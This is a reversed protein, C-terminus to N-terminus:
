FRYNLGGLFDHRSLSFEYDRDIAKAELTFSNWSYRYEGFVAWNPTILYELGAQAIAGVAWGSADNEAVKVDPDLDARTGLIGGGGYIRFPCAVYQLLISGSLNLLGLDANIDNVDQLESWTHWINAEFALWPLSKMWYGFKGGLSPGGETKFDTTFKGGGLDTIDVSTDPEYAYGAYVGVYSEAQALGALALVLIATLVVVTHKM